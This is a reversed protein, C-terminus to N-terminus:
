WEILGYVNLRTFINCVEHVKEIEEVFNCRMKQQEANESLFLLSISVALGWNRGVVTSVTSESLLHTSIIIRYQSVSQGRRPMTEM